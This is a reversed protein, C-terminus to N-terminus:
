RLVKAVDDVRLMLALDIVPRNSHSGMGTDMLRVEAIGPQSNLAHMFAALRTHTTAHGVIKVRQEIAAFQQAEGSAPAAQAPAPERRFFHLEDLWVNDNYAADIAMLLMRLRDRGRLEDLETLQREVLRIQQRYNDAEAQSQASVQREMELRVISSRELSMAAKLGLFSVGIVAVVSMLALSFQRVRLRVRQAKSYSSPILDVDAMICASGALGPWDGNFFRFLAAAM